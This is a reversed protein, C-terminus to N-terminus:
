AGAARTLLAVAGDEDFAPSGSGGDTSVKVVGGDGSLDVAAARSVHRAPAASLLDRRPLVFGGVLAAGLLIATQALMAALLRM